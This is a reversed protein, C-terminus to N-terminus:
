LRDFVGFCLMIYIHRLVRVDALVFHLLLSHVHARGENGLIGLELQEIIVLRNHVIEVVFAHSYLDYINRRHVIRELDRLKGRHLFDDVLALRLRDLGPRRHPSVFRLHRYQSGLRSLRSLRSLRDLRCFRDLLGSLDGLRCFCDLLGILSDLRNGICLRRGDLRKIFWLCGDIVKRLNGCGLRDFDDVLSSVCVCGGDLHNILRILKGCIRNVLNVDLFDFRDFLRRDRADNNVLRCVILRCRLADFLLDDGLRGLLRSPSVLCSIGVHRGFLWNRSLLLDFLCNLSRSILNQSLGLLGCGNLRSSIFVFAPEPSRRAWDKIVIKVLRFSKADLAFRGECELLQRALLELSMLSLHLASLLLRGGDQMLHELGRRLTLTDSGRASCVHQM